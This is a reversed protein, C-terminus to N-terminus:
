RGPNRKVLGAGAVPGEGRTTGKRKKPRAALGMEAMVAAVTNKSVRWGLDHLDATIM